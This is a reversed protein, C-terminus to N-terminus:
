RKREKASPRDHRIYHEVCMRCVNYEDAAGAWLTCAVATGGIRLGQVADYRSGGLQQHMAEFECSWRAM